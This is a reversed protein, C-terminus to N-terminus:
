PAGAAATKVFVKAWAREAFEFAAKTEQTVGASDASGRLVSTTLRYLEHLITKTLEAESAFAERGIVFGNEAFNTLGSAPMGPEYQIVRGGIKVMIDKGLAQAQRIQMMEPSALIQKAEAIAAREAATFGALADAAAAGGKAATTGATEPAGAKIPLRAGVYWLLLQFALKEAAQAAKREDDVAKRLANCLEPATSDSIVTPFILGGGGIYYAYSNPLRSAAIAALADARTAYVVRIETNSDKLPDSGLSTESRALMVPDAGRGNVVQRYLAFGGGWMPIGVAVIAKGIFRSDSAPEAGVLVAGKGFIDGITPGSPTGPAHRASVPVNIFQGVLILDPNQIKPNAELLAPVTTKFRKSIGTLTDGKQAIYKEM